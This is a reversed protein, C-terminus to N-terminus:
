TDAAVFLGAGVLVAGSGRHLFRLSRRNLFWQRARFALFVNGLLVSGVVVAVISVVCLGDGLTMRTLDMFAPLFGVYFLIVKPNGLCLMLGSAFDKSPATLPASPLDTQFAEPRTRWTRVGLWILYAAGAMRVLFFFEGFAQIVAAVGLLAASVYILDGLVMGGAMAASSGMRASSLSRATLAMVCPGPAASFVFLAGALALATELTM